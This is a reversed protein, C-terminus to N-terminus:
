QCIEEDKLSELNTTIVKVSSGSKSASFDAKGLREGQYYLEMDVKLDTSQCYTRTQVDFSMGSEPDTMTQSVVEGDAKFITTTREYTEPDTSTVTYTTVSGSVSQSIVLDLSTVEGTTISTCRGYSGSLNPCAFASTSLLLGVLLFRM